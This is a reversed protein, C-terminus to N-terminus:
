LVALPARSETTDVQMPTRHPRSQLRVRSTSGLVYVRATAQWQGPRRFRSQQDVKLMALAGVALTLEGAWVM